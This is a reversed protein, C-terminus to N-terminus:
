KSDFGRFDKTGIVDFFEAEPSLVFLNFKEAFVVNKDPNL